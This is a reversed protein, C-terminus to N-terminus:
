SALFCCVKTVEEQALEVEEEESGQGKVETDEEGDLSTGLSSVIGFKDMTTEVQSRINTVMSTTWSKVYEQM